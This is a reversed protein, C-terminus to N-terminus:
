LVPPPGRCQCTNREEPGRGPARLPGLARLVPGVLGGARALLCPLTVGLGARQALRSGGVGSCSGLWRLRRVGCQPVSLGAVSGSLCAFVLVLVAGGLWPLVRFSGHPARPHASPSQLPRAVSPPTCIIPVLAVSLVASPCQSIGPSSNHTHLHRWPPVPCTMGFKLVKRGQPCAGSHPPPAGGCGYRGWAVPVVPISGVRGGRGLADLLPVLRGNPPASSSM